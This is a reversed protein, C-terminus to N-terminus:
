APGSCTCPPESTATTEEVLWDGDEKVLEVKGEDEGELEGEGFIETAIDEDDGKYEYKVTVNVTAKDGDEKVDGIEFEFDTDDLITQFDKFEDEFEKQQEKRKDALLRRLRRCREVRAARRASGEGLARM